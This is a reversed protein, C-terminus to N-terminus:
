VVKILTNHSQHVISANLLSHLPIHYFNQSFWYESSGSEFWSCQRQRGETVNSSDQKLDGFSKQICCGAAWQESLPHTLHPSCSDSQCFVKDIGKPSQWPFQFNSTVMGKSNIRKFCKVNQAVMHLGMHSVVLKQQAVEEKHTNRVNKIVWRNGLKFMWAWQKLGALAVRGSKRSFDKSTASAMQKQVHKKQDLCNQGWSTKVGSKALRNGIVNRKNTGEPIWLVFFLLSRYAALIGTTGSDYWSLKLWEQTKKPFYHNCHESTAKRFIKIQWIKSGGTTPFFTAECIRDCLCGAKLPSKDKKSCFIQKYNPM